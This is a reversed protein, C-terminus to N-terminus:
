EDLEGGVAFRSLLLSKRSALYVRRQEHYKLFLNHFEEASMGDPQNYGLLALNLPDAGNKAHDRDQLVILEDILAVSGSNIGTGAIAEGLYAGISRTDGAPGPEDRMGPSSSNAISRRRWDPWENWLKSECPGRGIGGYLPKAVWQVDPDDLVTRALHQLGGTDGRRSATAALGTLMKLVLMMQRDAAASSERALAEAQKIM